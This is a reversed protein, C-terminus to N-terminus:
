ISFYFGILFLNFAFYIPILLIFILNSLFFDFVLSHFQLLFLDFEICNSSHPGSQLKALGVCRKLHLLSFLPSSFFQRWLEKMGHIGVRAAGGHLLHHRSWVGGRFAVLPLRFSSCLPCPRRGSQVCWGNKNYFSWFVRSRISYKSSISTLFGFSGM